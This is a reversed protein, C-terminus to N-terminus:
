KMAELLVKAPPAYTVEAGPTAEDFAEVDSCAALCGPCRETLALTQLQKHHTSHWIDTIRDEKVNGMLDGEGRMFFCPYINGRFDVLLLKSPLFCGGPPIPRKGHALYDPIVGFLSETFIKIGLKKAHADLRKLHAVIEERPTRMLSFRSIEKEPGSIETQFPQFSVEKLGLDKALTVLAQLHPITEKMIVGSLGIDIGRAVAKRVLAVSKAYNGEGRLEDHIDPPGDISIHLSVSPMKELRDLQADTIMTGNTVIDQKTYGLEHAYEVIELFDKRMFSEAGCPTFHRAGLEYADRLLEKAKANDPGHERLEWVSCMKCKLNCHVTLEIAIEDLPRTLANHPTLPRFINLNM